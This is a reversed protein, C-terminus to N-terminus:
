AQKKGFVLALIIGLILFHVMGYLFWQLALSYPIPYMAYSSYAMPTAMLFGSYIGFQVGEVVGRGTYWQSFILTLFFSTVVTVVHFVWMKSQMDPRWVKMMDESGYVGSLLVGHIVFALVSWSIFVAVFGIWLKKNM